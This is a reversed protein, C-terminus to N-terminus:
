QTRARRSELWRYAGEAMVFSGTVVVTRGNAASLAKEIAGPISDASETDGNYTGVESLVREAPMARESPPTVIIVHDSMQAVYRAIHSLDKDDLLGFVTVVKGYTSLIDGSLAEMGAATHTVDVVLPLGDIKEMRGPWRAKELGDHIHAKVDDAGSILSIAEIAMPVNVTQYTGPIGVTYEEGGYRLFSAGASEAHETVIIRSRRESAVDKIVELAPGTNCTVAPVGPKIIGAKEFAIKEITDGLFQTHELSINCIVSVEPMIVNTADFRGGMGVEVVAYEVSCERFYLFAMATMAEFFTCRIDEEALAEMQGRVVHALRVFDDDNIDEKGVRIRENPRLIHPSTFLGTRIGSETLISHIFACTSGKGDSGAVHISRFSDQPDGLRHLLERINELGNKAGFRTLGFLWETVSEIESM